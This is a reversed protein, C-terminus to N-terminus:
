AMVFLLDIFFFFLCSIISRELESCEFERGEDGFWDVSTEDVGFLNGGGAAFL